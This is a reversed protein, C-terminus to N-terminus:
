DGDCTSLELSSQNTIPPVPARPARSHPQSPFRMECEPCISSVPRLPLVALLGCSAACFLPAQTVIERLSTPDVVSAACRLVTLGVVLMM